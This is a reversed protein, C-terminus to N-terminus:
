LSVFILSLSSSKAIASTLHLCISLITYYVISRFSNVDHLANLFLCFGSLIVFLTSNDSVRLYDPNCGKGDLTLLSLVPFRVPAAPFTKCGLKALLDIRRKIQPPAILLMAFINAFIGGCRQQISNNPYASM